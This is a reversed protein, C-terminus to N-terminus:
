INLPNTIQFKKELVRGHGGNAINTVKSKNVRKVGGVFKGDIVFTRTDWYYKGDLKMPEIKQQVMYGPKVTFKYPMRNSNTVRINRGLSDNAPKIVYGKKFLTKNNKLVEKLEENSDVM